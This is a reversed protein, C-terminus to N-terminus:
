TGPDAGPGNRGSVATRLDRVEQRLAQVQDALLRLVDDVGEREEPTDGDGTTVGEPAAPDDSKLEASRDLRFFSALSGSLMGLVAIGTVMIMVAAWRGTATKPVIDGYGVTTLTVIGWWLADGVTAFEPNTPHEAHYAVLSGALTVTLAVGAVKGLRDVLNRGQRSVILLRVLRALRLAVLFKGAQAGPLLFWPATAIVVFLDFRGLWTALYRELHRRQVIYDVLFVIWSVVGILLSVWSTPEPAIILPLLASAVLPWRMWVGFRELYAADAASRPQGPAIAEPATKM